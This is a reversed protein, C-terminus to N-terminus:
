TLDKLLLYNPLYRYEKAASAAAQLLSVFWHKLAFTCESVFFESVQNCKKHFNM